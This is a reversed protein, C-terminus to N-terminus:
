GVGSKFAEDRHQSIPGLFGIPVEVIDKLDPTPYDRGPGNYEVTNTYHEYYPKTFRSYPRMDEPENAYPAATRIAPRGPPTAGCSCAGPTQALASVSLMLLALFLRM